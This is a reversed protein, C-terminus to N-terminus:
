IFDLAKKLLSAPNIRNVMNKHVWKVKQNPLTRTSLPLSYLKTETSQTQKHHVIVFIDHHTIAHRYSFKKPPKTDIAIEGPFIWQGKLFPAYDNEILAVKGDRQLLKPKWIWVEKAKRPRSIPRVGITENKRAQCKKVWPCLICAPNKPTCVTAGLEMLAQNLDNAREIQVLSDVRDQLEQRAKPKWWELPLDFVRSMVRIVNGDLVGVKQNFAFSAVARATYPGLGKFKLLEQYTPPFGQASFEQAAKHLNRARSYYGLGAWYSFVEELSSNALDHVTPFRAMFKEFFPVVAVVTTQQLMVESVWIRYPDNDERWPLKRKNQDYWTLLKAQM